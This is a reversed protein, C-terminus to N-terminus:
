TGRRRSSPSCSRAPDVGPAVSPDPCGRSDMSRDGGGRSHRLLARDGRDRRPPQSRDRAFPEEAVRAAFPRAHIRGLVRLGRVSPWPGARDDRGPDEGGGSRDRDAASPLARGAARLVPRDMSPLRRLTIAAALGLGALARGRSRFRVIGWLASAAIHFAFSLNSLIGGIWIGALGAIRRVSGPASEFRQMAALGLIAFLMVLSYNRVEQAYWIHFPNVALLASAALARRDGFVPRAAAFLLPVSAASILAQPLRVAFDGWGFLGCWLHLLAAHLPGQLNVLLGEATLPRELGAFKLTFQEDVWISQRTLGWLRLALGGMTLLLVALRVSLWGSRYRVM